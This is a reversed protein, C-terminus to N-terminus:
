RECAWHDKDWISHKASYAPHDSPVGDPYVKRLETCNQFFQKSNTSPDSSHISSNNPRNSSSEKDLDGKATGNGGFAWLGEGNERAEKAFKMFYKSYKVDPPYTSPEAYGNLILDANYM